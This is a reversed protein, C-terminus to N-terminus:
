PQSPMEQPAASGRSIGASSSAADRPRPEITNVSGNPAPNWRSVGGRSVTVAALGRRRQGGIRDFSGAVYLTRGDRSLALTQITGPRPPRQKGARAFHPDGRLRWPLLKGRVADVAALSQRREGDIRAFGGGLFLTRGRIALARVRGGGVAVQWSRDLQGNARLHAVTAAREAAGVATIAGTVFWGGRGDAVAASATGEVAPRGQVPTGDARVAVWSGTPPGILKFDGGVYVHDPTAGVALITGDAYFSRSARAALKPLAHTASPLVGTATVVV